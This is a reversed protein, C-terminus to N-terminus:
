YFTCLRTCVSNQNYFLDCLLWICQLLVVYLDLYFLYSGFNSYEEFSLSRSRSWVGAACQSLKWRTELRDVQGNRVYLTQVVSVNRWITVKVKSGKFKFTQLTDASVRDFETGFKLSISCKAAFNNRNLYTRNTYWGGDQIQGSTFNVAGCGVPGMNRWRTLNWCLLAIQQKLSIHHNLLNDM